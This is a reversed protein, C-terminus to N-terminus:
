PTFLHEAVSRTAAESLVSVDNFRGERTSGLVAIVVPHDLGIDQIVVLNGGALETYGTKSGIIGTYSEVGPNTNKINHVINSESVVKTFHQSTDGFLEPHKKWIYAFLMGMDRASGYAGGTVSDLDLGTANRFSTDDLGLAHARRNMRNIFAKKAQLDPTAEENLIRAGAVAAIKGAGDNSSAVLTFDLLKKFTWTEDVALGADGEESLDEPHITIKTDPPLLESAVLAVMMKTVSALPLKEHEHKAFIVRHEKIDWVFAARGEIKPMAVPPHTPPPPLSSLHTDIALTPQQDINEGHAFFHPGVLVGLLVAILLLQIRIMILYKNM